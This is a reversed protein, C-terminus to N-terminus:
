ISTTKVSEIKVQGHGKGQIKLTLYLIQEIEALSPAITVFCYAFMNISRLAEFTVMPNSRPWSSSKSSELDFISNTVDRDLITLNGHFWFCAYRNFKLGWIHGDSKVRAMVKVKFKWPWNHFKSCRLWLHDSHWLIYLLCMPQIGPRMLSWHIQGHGHGQFKFKWHWIHDQGNPDVLYHGPHSWINAHRRSM